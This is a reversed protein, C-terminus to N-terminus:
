KRKGKTQTKSIGNTSGRVVLPAQLLIKEAPLSPNEIRAQLRRFAAAAIAESPQHITTLGPQMYRATAKDDFGALMLEGPVALGMRDAVRKVSMAMMDFGCVVADPRSRGTLHRRIARDDDIACRLVNRGDWGLGSMTVGLAVGHMRNQVVNSCNPRMFFHIKRAGREVLHQTLALAAGVNDIGVLDCDSRRPLPVVDYDLLVVPVGASRFAALVRANLAEADPRFSVPQFLVGAVRNQIFDAVSKMLKAPFDRREAERVSESAMMSFLLTYDNEVCLRSLVSAVPMFFESEPVCPILGITRLAGRETVFTGSGQSSRVLGEDKLKSVVKVATLNSIGFRRILMAKSPFALSSSYKGRLIEDKLTELVKRYKIEVKAM